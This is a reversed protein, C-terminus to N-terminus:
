GDATAEGRAAHPADTFGPGRPVVTEPGDYGPRPPYNSPAADPTHRSEDEAHALAEDRILICANRIAEPLFMAPEGNVLGPLFVLKSLVEQAMAICDHASELTDRTEQLAKRLVRASRTTM